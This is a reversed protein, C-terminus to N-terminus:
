RGRRKAERQLARLEEEVLDLAALLSDLRTEISERRTNGRRQELAVRMVKSRDGSSLLALERALVEATIHGEGDGLLHAATVQLIRSLTLMLTVDMDQKDTEIRSLTAVSIGAEAAVDSM